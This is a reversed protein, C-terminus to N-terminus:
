KKMGKELEGALESVHLNRRVVKGQDDILLMTPLTLVGLENAPRGDLGGEEWIHYWPYSNTRLFAAADARQSDLNVGVLTLGKSAHKAQMEKLTKMDEKCPECWTAWYHLVVWKGRLSSLDLTRGDLMTGRFALTKGVSDLRKLAGAAKKARPGTPDNHVIREYFKRAEDDKGAFELGLALQIMAESADDSEPYKNVFSELEKLWEEQIKAYDAGPAQYKQAYSATMLRFQVYAALSTKGSSDDLRKVMSALRAEGEPWDGTQVAEALVDAFQRIWNERQEENAADAIKELLEAQKERLPPRQAGAAADLKKNVSELDAILKQLEESVGGEQLAAVDPQQAGPGHFFFGGSAFANQASDLNQPLDIARWADGVRILTGIVVQSHKGATEVVASVNEYVLIDKTSGNVGAPVIGPRSGGFHVWKSQPTVVNQRQALSKFGAAAAALKKELEKETEPSLGLNKLEESTLLLRRFRSEDRDRLAAVVEATAEEPSIMKWAEIQGNEGRDVGWRIGETGLWRYQDAKGNFDNDVDRYVEVGNKYYCWLDVKNDGNTDLFRRLLQGANDYVVWGSAGDSKEAKIVCKEADDKGPTDFDVERQIPTLALAAAASPKAAEASQAALLLAAPVATKAFRSLRRLQSHRCCGRVSLRPSGNFM